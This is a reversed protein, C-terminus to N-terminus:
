KIFHLNPRPPKTARLGNEGDTKGEHSHRIPKKNPYATQDVPTQGTTGTSSEPRCNNVARLLASRTVEHM